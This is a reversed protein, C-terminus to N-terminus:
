RAVHEFPGRRRGRAALMSRAREAQGEPIRVWAPAAQTPPSAPEPEDRPDSQAVLPAFARVVDPDFQTGAARELEALAETVPRAPQYPRDTTMANFADCVAVIRSEIPISHAALRDPYGNGDFHEHSARVLQGISALSGGVQRLMREGDVTHRRIIQWEDEDLRGPKNLIEKPVHIKGVDHLLATFEVNRRAASDLGLADALGIALDVVQRSHIGTYRDDAEVVDGLLLATGRYATSLAVTSDLRQQRERAFLWLLGMIPLALLILGPRRAASAAIMFGLPALSADVLYVWGLLPVQIRPSIGEALWPRITSAALDFVLQAVLALAYIPWHSWSFRQAGGLVIVLAPGFTFWADGIFAPILALDTRGRVLDPARRLLIAAAAVLPVVPTPLVFLMPVFAVVTPRTWGSGVPFTVREVSIWVILVLVLNTVSFPRDWPSLAALLSAAVLFAGAGVAHTTLERRRRYRQTLREAGAALQAEADPSDYADM